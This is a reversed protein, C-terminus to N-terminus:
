IKEEKEMEFIAFPVGTAEDIATYIEENLIYLVSLPPDLYRILDAVNELYIVLENRDKRTAMPNTSDLVRRSHSLVDRVIAPINQMMKTKEERIYAELSRVSQLIYSHRNLSEDPPTFNM